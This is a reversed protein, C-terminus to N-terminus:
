AAADLAEHYVLALTQMKNEGDQQMADPPREVLHLTNGAEVGACM